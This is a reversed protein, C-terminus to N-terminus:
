AVLDAPRRRTLVRDVNPMDNGAVWAQADPRRMDAWRQLLRRELEDRSVDIFISLDFLAALETWPAEDLLLYNGEVIIFRVDHEVIAAAARSLERGRDFIPIAIEPERARIRRLLHAFGRVDFTEPAGKRKQLGRSALVVDDYHFGDMPVVSSSGPPLRPVLDQAMTSKGAGPPGAIAVVFRERARARDLIISAVEAIDVM